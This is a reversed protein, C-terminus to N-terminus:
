GCCRANTRDVTPPGCCIGTPRCTAIGVTQDTGCVPDLSGACLNVDITAYGDSTCPNQCTCDSAAQTNCQDMTDLEQGHVTGAWGTGADTAFSEVALDDLALRLKRM